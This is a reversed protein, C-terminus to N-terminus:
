IRFRQAARPALIGHYTLRARAGAGLLQSLRKALVEPRFEVHTTGGSFAHELQYRVRGAQAPEFADLRGPPRTIYRALGALATRAGAHGQPGAFGRAAGESAVRGPERGDGRPPANAQNSSREISLRRVAPVAPPGIAQQTTLEGRANELEGAHD